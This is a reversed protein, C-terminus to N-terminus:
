DPDQTNQCALESCTIYHVEEACIDALYRLCVHADSSTRYRQIHSCRFAYPTGAVTLLDISM